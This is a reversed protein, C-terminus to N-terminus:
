YLNAFAGQKKGDGAKADSQTARRREADSRLADAWLAFPFDNISGGDNLSM